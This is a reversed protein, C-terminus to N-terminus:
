GRRNVDFFDASIDLAECLKVINQPKLSKAGNEAYSISQISLGVKSALDSQRIGLQKRREALREGMEVLFPDRM